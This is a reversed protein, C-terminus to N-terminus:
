RKKKFGHFISTIKKALRFSFMAIQVFTVASEVKEMASLGRKNGEQQTNFTAALQSKAYQIKIDNVLLRFRLQELDFGKFKKTAELKESHLNETISNM